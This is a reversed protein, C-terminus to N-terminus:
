TKIRKIKAGIKQLRQDINEYGRDVQYINDIISKGDAILAAIVVAIGARIDPSAVEKGRLKSPGNVLARYSDLLTIKAGMTNLIDTYLLRGDYITERVMSQGKAQTLLVTMPAQLDTAFGPYEHTVINTAQYEDAFSEVEISDSNIKFSVGIKGLIQLCTKINSPDCNIIKLKSKTAAALIVFSGAEIRDPIINHKGGAIFGGGEIIITHGGAGSIKAGQKNLYDALAVVEPEAATNKLITRGKALCAAMMLTETGTVSIQPFVYTTGILGKKAEFIYTDDKDKYTAGFAKFGDIFFNIPRKGLNCGGPHPLSVKGYRALLPGMLVLSARLKPVVKKPLTGSFKSPPKIKIERESLWEVKGGISEIIELMRLIDEVKPINSIITEQESLFAAPIAKLAHNKAGRVRIAGSLKKGGQIAFKEM